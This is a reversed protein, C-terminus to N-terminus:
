WIFFVFRACSFFNHCCIKKKNSQGQCSFDGFLMIGFSFFFFLVAEEESMGRPSHGFHVNWLCVWQWSLPDVDLPWNQANISLSYSFRDLWYKKVAFSYTNIPCANGYSSLFKNSFFPYQLLKVVWLVDHMKLDNLSWKLTVLSDRNDLGSDLLLM